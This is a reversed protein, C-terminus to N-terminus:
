DLIFVRSAATGDDPVPEGLMDRVAGEIMTSMANLALDNDETGFPEEIQAAIAEHAMFTYAVFVSFLPTFLGISEVLGFPLAACFFYVTRHIMVSYAFPLPTSVIRECGGIVNSLSGLNRDFALVAWADLSGEGARRQVWEGLWLMIAAPRYRSAMVREFVPAPLRASLDERPDTRRLQHRLAHPLAGLVQAFERVAAAEAGRPLTLAQRAMSRADNLLQGWLKRAEWYRDYSANNRFGLFVALAIGVLSFPTTSLNVTIKLLHAHVAVAVLSICFILFLRPLLQPLVSGRWALLMRFWHLHPRIVM